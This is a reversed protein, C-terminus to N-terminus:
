AKEYLNCSQFKFNALFDKSLGYGKLNKLPQRGCIKKPENKFLKDWINQLFILYLLESRNEM